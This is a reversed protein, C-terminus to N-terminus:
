KIVRKKNQTSYVNTLWLLIDIGGIEVVAAFCTKLSALAHLRM